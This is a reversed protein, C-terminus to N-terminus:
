SKCLQAAIAFFGEFDLREPRESPPVGAAALAALLLERDPEVQKLSNLLTKRRQQFSAKVLKIFCARVTEDPIRTPVIPILSLLASHVKPPPSFAGPPLTMALRADYYLRTMLSLAGYDDREAPTAVMRLAVERQFMLALVDFRHRHATLAFFIPTGVNYPLNAACKWRSEGALLAEFDVRLADGQTLTLPAGPSLEGALFAIADRDIEVAHVHAGRQLLTTTLTGPGPGIELVLDGERLQIADAIRGLISPDTLFHQGFRKKASRQYALVLEHPSLPM